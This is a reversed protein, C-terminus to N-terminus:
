MKARKKERPLDERPITAAFSMACQALGKPPSRRPLLPEFFNLRHTRQLSRTRAMTGLTTPRVSRFLGFMFFPSGKRESFSGFNLSRVQLSALISRFQPHSFSFSHCKPGDPSLTTRRLPLPRRLPTGSPPRPSLPGPCWSHVFCAGVLVVSECVCVCGITPQFLTWGLQFFQHLSVQGVYCQGLYWQGLHFQGM